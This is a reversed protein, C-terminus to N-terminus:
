TPTKIPTHWIPNIADERMRDNMSGFENKWFNLLVPDNIKSLTYERFKKDTLIRPVDVLTSGPTECLTLLTYRLIWELRPGWSFGYLKKFISVIGSAILEKQAPNIVELVNLAVPHAVDAPNFYCVDNVRRAPIFELLEECADGHPDIVALGNGKKIDDIAMNLLLTSKGSGTKGITYIHRRRDDKKIGFITM